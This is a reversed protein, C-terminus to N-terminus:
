YLEIESIAIFLDGFTGTGASYTLAAQYEVGTSPRYIKVIIPNGEQYGPLIPGGFASTDVSGIAVPSIQEGSWIVSVPGDQSAPGVLLQGINGSANIISNSDFIGIEDGVELGTISDQFIILQSKGSWGINVNYYFEECTSGDGGCEGCEDFELASGCENDCGSPGPEGCGCGFDDTNCGADSIPDKSCTVLFLVLSIILIKNM